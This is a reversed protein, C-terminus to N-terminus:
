EYSVGYGDMLERLNQIRKAEKEHEVRKRGLDAAMEALMDKLLKRRPLTLSVSHYLKEANAKSLKKSSSIYAIAATESSIAKEFRNKRGPMSRYKRGHIKPEKLGLEKFVDKPSAKKKKIAALDAKYEGSLASYLQAQAMPSLAGQDMLDQLMTVAREKQEDSGSLVVQAALMSKKHPEKVATATGKTGTKNEHTKKWWAEFANATGDEGGLDDIQKQIAKAPGNTRLGVHEAAALVLANEHAQPYQESFFDIADLFDSGRQSLGKEDFLESEAVGLHKVAARAYYGGADKTSLKTRKQGMLPNVDMEQPAAERLQKIRESGDLPYDEPLVDIDWRGKSKSWIKRKQLEAKQIPTLEDGQQSPFTLMRDTQQASKTAPANQLDFRREAMDHAFNQNKEALALRAWERLNQEEQLATIGRVQHARGIARMHQDRKMKGQERIKRQDWRTEIAPRFSRNAMMTGGVIAQQSDRARIGQLRTMSNAM